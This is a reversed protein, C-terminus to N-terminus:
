AKGRRSGVWGVSGPRHVQSPPVVYGNALWATQVETTMGWTVGGGPVDAVVGPATGILPGSTAPYAMPQPQFQQVSVYGQSSPLQPNPAALRSIPIPGNAGGPLYHGM